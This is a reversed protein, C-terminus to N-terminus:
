HAHTPEHRLFRPRAQTRVDIRHTEIPQVIRCVGAHLSFPLRAMRRRDATVVPDIPIEFEEILLDNVVERSRADYRHQADTDLLYVHVGQGTYVVMTHAACLEEEFITQVTFGHEIAAEVDEFAYPFGDPDASTIGTNALLEDETEDADTEGMTRARNRAVDKADIDVFLIWPRDWHDAAYYVAEAYPEPNALIDPDALGVPRGRLPDYRAPHQIFRVLVDWSPFVPRNSRGDDDAERTQRRIFTRDPAGQAHVPYPERFAIGFEKPGTPTVFGPIDNLYEPFEETYYAFLEDRTAQRWTM